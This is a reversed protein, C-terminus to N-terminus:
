GLWRGSASWRRRSRRSSAKTGRYGRKTSDDPQAGFQRDARDDVQQRRRGRVGGERAKASAGGAGAATADDAPGDSVQDAYGDEHKVNLEDRFMSESLM